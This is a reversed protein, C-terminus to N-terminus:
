VPVMTGQLIAVHTETEGKLAYVDAATVFLRRGPKIVRGRAILQEGTAPALLNIKMEATMVEADDPMMTLAAYGAASDGLAFTLGAHVFGHQQLAHPQIPASLTVGGESIATIKAGFGQMMAQRDFSDTIKRARIEDINIKSM